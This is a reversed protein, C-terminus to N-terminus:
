LWIVLGLLIPMVMGTFGLEQCSLNAVLDYDIMTSSGCVFRFEGSTCLQLVGRVSSDNLVESQFLQVEGDKCGIFNLLM